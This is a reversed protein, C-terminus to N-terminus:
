RDIIRISSLAMDGGGPIRIEGLKKLSASDYVAIDDMTGALYLERGDGSVNICYYTHDLDIRDLLAGQEADIKSLQTYVGYVENRRVPNMVTSFIIVATNEFDRTVFRDTSLDLSVLGTKYAEASAPDKDTRVAYYPSTFTGAQEWQPWVDLM